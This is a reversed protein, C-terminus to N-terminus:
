VATSLFHSVGTVFQLKVFDVANLILTGLRESTSEVVSNLALLNSGSVIKSYTFFKTWVYWRMKIMFFCWNGM